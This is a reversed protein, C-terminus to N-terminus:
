YKTSESFNVNNVIRSKLGIESLNEHKIQGLFNLVSM